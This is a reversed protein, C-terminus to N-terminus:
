QISAKGKIWRQSFVLWYPLFFNPPTVMAVMLAELFFPNEKKQYSRKGGAFVTM